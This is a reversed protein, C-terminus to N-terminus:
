SYKVRDIAEIYASHKQFKPLNGVATRIAAWSHVFFKDLEETTVDLDSRHHIYRSLANYVRKINAVVKMREDPSKATTFAIREALNQQIPESSDKLFLSELASFSYVLRDSINPFTLGKSYSLTSGRVRSAFDSLGDTPVLSAVLDLQNQERMHSLEVNSLRWPRGHAYAASRSYDFQNADDFIMATVTPDFEFGLLETPCHITSMVVAAHFFRLLGVVDEAISLARHVAFNKEAEVTIEVAANGQLKRRLRDVHARISDAHDPQTTLWRALSDDFLSKPITVIKTPGFKFDTQVQLNAIPMWIRHSCVDREARAKLYESFSSADADQHRLVLWDVVLDEIYDDGLLQKLASVKLVREKLDVIRQYNDGLVELNDAGLNTQVGSRKGENDFLEVRVPGIVDADTITGAIHTQGWMPTKPRRERAAPTAISPQISTATEDLVKAAEPHLTIKM